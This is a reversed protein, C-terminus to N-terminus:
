DGEGEGEGEGGGEGKGEEEGEEIKGGGYFARGRFPKEFFLM